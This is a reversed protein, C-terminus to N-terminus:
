CIAPCDTSTTFSLAAAGNSARSRTSPPEVPVAFTGVIAGDDTDTATRLAVDCEPKPREASSASRDSPNVAGPGAVFALWPRLVVSTCYPGPSASLARTTWACSRPTPRRTANLSRWVVSTTRTSPPSKLPTAAEVVM